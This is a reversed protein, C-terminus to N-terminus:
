RRGFLGAPRLILVAILLIYSIAAGLAPSTLEVGLTQALGLILGGYWNGKISGAGGIVVVVFAIITYDLGIFPSIAYLLSTMVGALGTLAFGITTVLLYVRKTSIGVLQAATPDDMVCRFSRGLWTHYFVLYLAISVIAGTIFGILATPVLVIGGIDIGQSLYQYSVQQASFTLSAAGEIIIILAFAILLTNSEVNLTKSKSIIRSFLGIYAIYGLVAFILVAGLAAFLPSIGVLTFSFFALYSGLMAIDGHAINLIGVIGYVINLGSALLAYFGGLLLGSILLQLLLITPGSM